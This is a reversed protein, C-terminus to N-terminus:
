EPDKESPEEAIKPDDEDAKVSNKKRKPDISIEKEREMAQAELDYLIDSADVLDFNSRRTPDDFDEDFTEETMDFQERYQRLQIGAHILAEVQQKVTRYGASEVMVPGGVPDFTREIPRNYKGYLM